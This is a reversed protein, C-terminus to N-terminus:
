GSKDLPVQYSGPPVLDLIPRGHSARVQFLIDTRFLDHVVREEVKTVLDYVDNTHRDAVILVGWSNHDHKCTLFVGDVRGSFEEKLIGVLSLRQAEDHPGLVKKM